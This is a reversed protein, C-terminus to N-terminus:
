DRFSEKLYEFVDSIGDNVRGHLCVEELAAGKLLSMVFDYQDLHSIGLM